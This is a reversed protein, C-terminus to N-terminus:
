SEDAGLIEIQVIFDWVDGKISDGVDGSKAGESVQKKITNKITVNEFIGLAMLSKRFELIEEQNNTNGALTLQKEKFQYDVLETNIPLVDSVGGLIKLPIIKNQNLVELVKENHTLLENETILNEYPIRFGSQNNIVKEVQKIEELCNRNLVYLIGYIFFSIVVLALVLKLWPSQFFIKSGKKKLPQIPLLNIESKM